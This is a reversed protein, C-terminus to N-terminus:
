KKISAAAILHDLIIQQDLLTLGLLQRAPYRKKSHRYNETLGYQHTKAINAVKGLFGVWAEGDGESDIGSKLYKAAQLKKFMPGSPQYTPKDRHSGGARNVDRSDEPLFWMKKETDDHRTLINEWAFFEDKDGNQPNIEDFGIIAVGKYIRWSRLFVLRAHRHNNGSATKNYLFKLPYLNERFVSFKRRPTYPLGDSDKQSKIRKKQSKKVDNAIKKLLTDRKATSLNSVLQGVFKEVELFEYEAM